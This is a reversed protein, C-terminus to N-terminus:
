FWLGHGRSCSERWREVIIAVDDDVGGSARELNPSLADPGCRPV